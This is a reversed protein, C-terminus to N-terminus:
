DKIERRKGKENKELLKSIERRWGARLDARV